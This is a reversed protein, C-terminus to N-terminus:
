PQLKTDSRPHSLERLIDLHCFVTNATGTDDYWRRAQAGWVM